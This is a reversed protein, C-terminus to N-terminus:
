GFVTWSILLIFILSPIYINVKYDEKTSKRFVKMLCQWSKEELREAGAESCLLSVEEYCFCAVIPLVLISKTGQQSPPIVVVPVLSGDVNLVSVICRSHHFSVVAAIVAGPMRISVITSKMRKGLPQKNKRLHMQM